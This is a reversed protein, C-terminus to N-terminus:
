NLVIKRSYLSTLGQLTVTKGNRFLDVGLHLYREIFDDLKLVSLSSRDRKYIEIVQLEEKSYQSNSIKLFESKNQTQFIGKQPESGEGRIHNNRNRKNLDRQNNSTKTV